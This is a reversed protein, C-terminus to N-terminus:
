ETIDWLPGGIGPYAHISHKCSEGNRHDKQILLTCISQVRSPFTLCEDFFFVSWIEIETCHDSKELAWWSESSVQDTSENAWTRPLLNDAPPSRPVKEQKKSDMYQEYVTQLHPSQLHTQLAHCLLPKRVNVSDSTMLDLVRIILRLRSCLSSWFNHLRWYCGRSLWPWLTPL